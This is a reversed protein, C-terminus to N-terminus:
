TRSMSIKVIQYYDRFCEKHEQSKCKENVEMLVTFITDYISLLANM